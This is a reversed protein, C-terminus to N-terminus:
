RRRDLNFEILTTGLSEFVKDRAMKSWTSSKPSLCKRIKSLLFNNSAVTVLVVRRDYDGPLLDKCSRNDLEHRWLEESSTRVTVTSPTYYERKEYLIM